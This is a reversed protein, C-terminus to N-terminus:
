EAQSGRQQHSEALQALTLDLNNPVQGFKFELTGDLATLVTAAISLTETQAFRSWPMLQPSLMLLLAVAIVVGPRPMLRALMIAFYFTAVAFVISQGTLVTAVMEPFIAWVAAARYRTFINAASCRM